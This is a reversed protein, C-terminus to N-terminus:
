SRGGLFAREGGLPQEVEPFAGSDREAGLQDMHVLNCWVFGLAHMGLFSNCTALSPDQWHYGAHFAIPKGTEEIMRYLRMYENAHVPKYRTSTVTFGIVNPNAGFEEVTRCAADPSNFPLVALSLIGDEASLVNEALWRNYANSLVAEMEPQPHMGIFLMPTPFLVMYDVCLAEMARRTLVADAHVGPEDVKERRSSQHPVRGASM